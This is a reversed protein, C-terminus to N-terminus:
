SHWVFIIVCGSAHTANPTPAILDCFQSDLFGSLSLHTFTLNRFVNLAFLILRFLTYYSLLGTVSVELMGNFLASLTLPSFFSSPISFCGAADIM